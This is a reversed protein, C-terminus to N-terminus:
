QTRELLGNIVLLKIAELNTFMIPRKKMKEIYVSVENYKKPKWPDGKRPGRQIAMANLVHQKLKRPKGRKTLPPEKPPINWGMKEARKVRDQKDGLREEDSFQFEIVSDNIKTSNRSGKDGRINGLTQGTSTKKGQRIGLVSKYYRQQIVQYRQWINQMIEKAIKVNHITLTFKGHGGSSRPPEIDASADINDVAGRLMDPLDKLNIRIGQGYMTKHISEIIQQRIENHFNSM